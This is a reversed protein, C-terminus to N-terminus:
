QASMRKQWTPTLILRDIEERLRPESPSVLIVPLVIEAESKAIGRDPNAATAARFPHAIVDIRDDDLAALAADLSGYETVAGAGPMADRLVPNDAVIGVTKGSVSSAFDVTPSRGGTLSVLYATLMATVAMSILMWVMALTRGRVTKPITDGYGITTATVGAWWFGNGIGKIASNDGDEGDVGSNRGRELLWFLAGFVALIGAFVLAVKLFDMSFLKMLDRLFGRSQSGGILGIADRTFPLSRDYSGPRDATAFAPLVAIAGARAAGDDADGAGNPGQEVGTFSVALGSREAASRVLDVAPGTWAGSEDQEAYPPSSTVLVTRRADASTATFILLIGLFVPLLATQLKLMTGIGDTKDLIRQLGYRDFPANVGEIAGDEAKLM